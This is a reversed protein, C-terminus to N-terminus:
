YFKTLLIIILKIVLNIFNILIWLLVVGAIIFKSLWEKIYEIHVDYWEYKKEINKKPIFAYDYSPLYKEKSYNFVKFYFIISDQTNCKVFVTDQVFAMSIVNNCTYCIENYKFDIYPDILMSDREDVISKHEDVLQYRTNKYIIGLNLDNHFVESRTFFQYVFLISIVIAFILNIKKM